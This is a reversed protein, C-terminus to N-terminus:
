SIAPLLPEDHRDSQDVQNLGRASHQLVVGPPVLDEAREKVHGTYRYWSNSVSVWGRAPQAQRIGSRPTANRSDIGKSLSLAFPPRTESERIIEHL